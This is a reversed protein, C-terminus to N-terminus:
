DERPRFHEAPRGALYDASPYGMGRQAMQDLGRAEVAAWADCRRRMDVEPESPLPGAGLCADLAILLAVKSPM